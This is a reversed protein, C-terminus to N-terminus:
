GSELHSCAFTMSSDKYKFRISTAGKNAMNMTGLNLQSAAIDKIFPRLCRKVYIIIFLGVLGVSKIKVYKDNDQFFETQNDLAGQVM